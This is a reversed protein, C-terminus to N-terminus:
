RRAPKRKRTDSALIDGGAQSSEPLKALSSNQAIPTLDSSASFAAGYSTDRPIIINPKTFSCPLYENMWSSGLPFADFPLVFNNNFMTHQQQTDNQSLYGGSAPNPEAQSFPPLPTQQFHLEFSYDLSDNIWPSEDSAGTMTNHPVSNLSGAM